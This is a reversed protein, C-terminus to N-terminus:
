SVQLNVFYANDTFSDLLTLLASLFPGLQPAIVSEGCDIPVGCPRTVAGAYVNAVPRTEKKEEM